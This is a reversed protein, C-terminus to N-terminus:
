WVVCDITTWGYQHRTGVHGYCGDSHCAHGCVPADYRPRGKAMQKIKEDMTHLSFMGKGPPLNLVLFLFLMFPVVKWFLSNIPESSTRLPLDPLRRRKIDPGKARWSGDVIARATWTKV